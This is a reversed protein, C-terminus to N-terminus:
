PVTVRFTQPDAAPNVGDDSFLQLLGRVPLWCQLFSRLTAELLPRQAKTLSSPVGFRQSLGACALMAARAAVDGYLQLGPQYFM